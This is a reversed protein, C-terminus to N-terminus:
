QVPGVVARDVHGVRAWDLGSLPIMERWEVSSGGGGTWCCRQAMRQQHGSARAQTFSFRVALSGREKGGDLRCRGLEEEGTEVGFGDFDNEVV